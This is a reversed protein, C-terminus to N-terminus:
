IHILSLDQWPSLSPSSSLSDTGVAIANGERLYAAVPPADLGIVANSRPCLAVSVGRTRLLARDDADM